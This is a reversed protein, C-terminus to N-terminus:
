KMKIFNPCTLVILLSLAVPIPIKNNPQKAKRREGGQKVKGRMVCSSVLPTM